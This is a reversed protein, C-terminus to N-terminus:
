QITKNKIFNEHKNRKETFKMLNIDELPTSNEKILNRNEYKKNVLTMLGISNYPSFNNEKPNFVVVKYDVGNEKNTNNQKEKINANSGSRLILEEDNNKCNNINNTNNDLFLKAKQISIKKNRKYKASKEEIQKRNIRLIQNLYNYLKSNTKEPSESNEFIGKTKFYDKNNRFNFLTKGYKIEDYSDNILNNEGSDDSYFNVNEDSKNKSLLKFQKHNLSKNFNNYITNNNLINNDQLLNENIKGKNIANKKITIQDEKSFVDNHNLNTNINLEKFLHTASLSNIIGTYKPALIDSPPMPSNCKRKTTQTFDNINNNIKKTNNIKNFEKINNNNAKPISNNNNSISKMRKKVQPMNKNEKYNFVKKEDNNNIINNRKNNNNNNNQINKILNNTYNTPSNNMNNIIKNDNKNESVTVLTSIINKVENIENNKNEYQKNIKQIEENSINLKQKIEELIKKIKEIEEDINKFKKEKQQFIKNFNELKTDTQDEIKIIRSLLEFNKEKLENIKFEVNEMINQKINDTYTNSRLICSDILSSMSNLGQTMKLKLENNTKFISEQAIKLNIVETITKTIYDSLSFFQCNKSNGLIGPIKFTEDISKECLNKITNIQIQSNNLKTEQTFIKTDIKKMQSEIDSIKEIKINYSALNDMITSNNRDLSNISDNITTLNTSFEQNSNSIKQLLKKELERLNKLMDDKFKMLEINLM